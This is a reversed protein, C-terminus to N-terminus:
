IGPVTLAGQAGPDKPCRSGRAGQPCRSGRAGQPCRSDRDGQPCRSNRAGQPCRSGRAGQVRACQPDRAQAGPVRLVGQAGPVSTLTAGPHRADLAGTLRSVRSGCEPCRAELAGPSGPVMPASKIRACAGAPVRPLTSGPHRADLAGQPIVGEPCGLTLTEGPASALTGQPCRLGGPCRWLSSGDSLTTLEVRADVQKDIV